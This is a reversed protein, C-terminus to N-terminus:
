AELSKLFEDGIRRARPDEHEIVDPRGFLGLGLPAAASPGSLVL